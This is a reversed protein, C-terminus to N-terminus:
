HFTACIKDVKDNLATLATPQGNFTVAIAEVAGALPRIVHRTLSNKLPGPPCEPTAKSRTKRKATVLDDIVQQLRKLAEPNLRKTSLENVIRDPHVRPFNVRVSNRFLRAVRHLRESVLRWRM